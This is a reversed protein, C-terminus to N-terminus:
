ILANLDDLLQAACHVQFEKLVKPLRRATSSVGFSGHLCVLRHVDMYDSPTYPGFGSTGVSCATWCCPLSYRAGPRSTSLRWPQPSRPVQPPWFHLQLWSSFGALSSANTLPVPKGFNSQGWVIIHSWAAFGPLSLEGLIPWRRDMDLHNFSSTSSIRSFLEKLGRQAPLVRVSSPSHPWGLDQGREEM